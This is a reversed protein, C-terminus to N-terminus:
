ALHGAAFCALGFAVLAEFSLGALGIAVLGALAFLVVAAVFLLTSVTM